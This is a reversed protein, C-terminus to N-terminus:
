ASLQEMKQHYEFCMYFEVLPLTQSLHRGLHSASNLGWYWWFWVLGFYIFALVLSQVVFGLVVCVCVCVCECM